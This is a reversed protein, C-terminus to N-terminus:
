SIQNSSERKTSEEDKSDHNWNSIRLPYSAKQEELPSFSKPIHVEKTNEVKSRM